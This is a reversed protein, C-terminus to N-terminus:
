TLKSFWNYTKMKAEMWMKCTVLTPEVLDSGLRAVHGIFKPVLAWFALWGAARVNEPHLRERAPVHRSLKAARVRRVGNPTSFAPSTGKSLVTLDNGMHLTQGVVSTPGSLVPRLNGCLSVCFFLTDARLRILVASLAQPGLVGDLNGMDFGVGVMVAPGAPRENGAHGLADPNATKVQSTTRLLVIAEELDSAAQASSSPPV